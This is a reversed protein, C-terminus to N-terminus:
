GFPAIRGTVILGMVGLACILILLMASLLFRQQPSLGLFPRARRRPLQVQDLAPAEEEEFLPSAAAQDRLNDLM